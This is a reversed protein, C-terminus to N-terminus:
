EKLYCIETLYMNRLCLCFMEFLYFLIFEQSHTRPSPGFCIGDYRKQCDGGHYMRQMHPFLTEEILILNKGSLSRGMHPNEWANIVTPYVRKPIRHPKRVQLLKWDSSHAKPDGDLYCCVYKLPPHHEPFGDAVICFIMSYMHGMFILSKPRSSTVASVDARRFCLLNYIKKAKTWGKWECLFLDNILFVLINFAHIQWKVTTLDYACYLHLM